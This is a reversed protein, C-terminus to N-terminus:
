AVQCFREEKEKLGKYEEDWEPENIIGRIGV